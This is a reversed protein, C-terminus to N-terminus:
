LTLKGCLFHSWQEKMWGVFLISNNVHISNMRASIHRTLTKCSLMAIRLAEQPQPHVSRTKSSHFYQKLIPKPLGFGKHKWKCFHLKEVLSNKTLILSSSIQWGKVVTPM